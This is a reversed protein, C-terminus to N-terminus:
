QSRKFFKIGFLVTLIGVLFGSTNLLPFNAPFFHIMTMLFTGFLITIEPYIARVLKNLYYRITDMFINMM